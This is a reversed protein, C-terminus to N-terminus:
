ADAQLVRGVRPAIDVYNNPTRSCQTSLHMDTFRLHNELAGSVNSRRATGHSSWHASTSCRLLGGSVFGEVVRHRASRCRLIIKVVYLPVLTGLLDKEHSPLPSSEELLLAGGFRFGSVVFDTGSARMVSNMKQSTPEIIASRLAVLEQDVM